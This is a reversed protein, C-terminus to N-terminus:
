NLRWGQRPRLFRNIIFFPWFSKYQESKATCVIKRSRIDIRVEVDEVSTSPVWPIKFIKKLTRPLNFSKYPYSHWPTCVLRHIIFFLTTCIFVSPNAYTSTDILLYLLRVILCDVLYAVRSTLYRTTARRSGQVHRTNPICQSGLSSELSLEPEYLRTNIDSAPIHLESRAM